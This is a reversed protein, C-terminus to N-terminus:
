PRTCLLVEPFLQLFSILPHLLPLPVPLPRNESNRSGLPAVPTDQAPWSKATGELQNGPLIQETNVKIPPISDPLPPNSGPESPTPGISAGWTQFTGSDRARQGRSSHLPRAPSTGLHQETQLSKRVHESPRQAMPLSSPHTPTFYGVFQKLVSRQM